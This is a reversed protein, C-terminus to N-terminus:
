TWSLANAAARWTGPSGPIVIIPEFCRVSGYFGVVIIQTTQCIPYRKLYQASSL